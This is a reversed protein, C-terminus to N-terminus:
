EMWLGFCFVGWGNNMKHRKWIQWQVSGRTVLVFSIKCLLFSFNGLREFPSLWAGMFRVLDLMEDVNKGYETNTWMFVFYLKSFYSRHCWLRLKVVTERYVCVAALLSPMFLTAVLTSQKSKGEQCPKTQKWSANLGASSALNLLLLTGLIMGRAQWMAKLAFSSM